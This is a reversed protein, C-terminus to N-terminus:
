DRACTDDVVATDSQSFNHTFRQMQLPLEKGTSNENEHRKTGKTENNNAAGRGLTPRRHRPWGSLSCQWQKRLEYHKKRHWLKTVETKRARLRTRSVAQGDNRSYPLSRSKARTLPICSNTRCRNGLFAVSQISSTKNKGICAARNKFMKKKWNKIVGNTQRARAGTKGREKSHTYSSCTPSQNKEPNNTRHHCPHFPM